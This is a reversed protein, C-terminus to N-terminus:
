LSVSCPGMTVTMRESAVTRRNQSEWGKACRGDGGGVGSSERVGIVSCLVDATRSSTGTGGEEEERQSKADGREAEQSNQGWLTGPCIGVRCILPKTGSCM